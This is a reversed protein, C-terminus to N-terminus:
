AWRVRRGLAQILHKIQADTMRVDDWRLHYGHQHSKATDTSLSFVLDIRTGSAAAYPNEIKELDSLVSDKTDTPSFRSCYFHPVGDAHVVNGSTINTSGTRKQAKGTTIVSNVGNVTTGSGGAFLALTNVTSTNCKVFGLQIVDHTAIDVFTANAATQNTAAGSAGIFKRSYGGVTQQFGPVSGLSMNKTGGPTFSNAVSGSVDQCNYGYPVPLASDVGAITCRLNHASVFASFEGSTAPFGEGSTADVTWTPTAVTISESTSNTRGDAKTVTLRVTYAGGAAYTHSPNQSTSTAGDGFDWAWGVIGNNLPNPDTSVDFFNTALTKAEYEIRAVANLRLGLLNLVYPYASHGVTYSQTYHIGSDLPIENVTYIATKTPNAAVFADQGAQVDAKFAGSNGTPLRCILVKASPRIAWVAAFFLGLNTGYAAAQAADLADSEGQIWLIVGLQAKSAREAAIVWNMALNFLNGSGAAPYTGTPSWHVALSTGGVGYKAIVWRNAYLDNLDHGLALESGYDGGTGYDSPRV